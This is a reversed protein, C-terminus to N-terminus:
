WMPCSGYGGGGGQGYGRGMMYGPGWGGSGMGYGNGWGSLGKNRAVDQIKTQLDVIEKQLTAIRNQDPNEKAYENRIELRKAFIADRMPLTEKQFERVAQVNVQNDPGTGYGGWRAYALSGLSLGVAVVLAVALLKKM